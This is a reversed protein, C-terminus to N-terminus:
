FLPELVFLVHLAPHLAKFLQLGKHLGVGRLPRGLFGAERGPIDDGQGPFHRRGHGPHDEVVAVPPRVVGVLDIEPTGENDQVGQHPGNLRRPAEKELFAHLGRAPLVRPLYTM